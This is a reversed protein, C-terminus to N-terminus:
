IGSYHEVFHLLLKKAYQNQEKPLTKKCLLRIACSFTLFHLYKDPPLIESLICPGTYLFFQRFDTAKWREMEHFTRPRRAFETPICFKLSLFNHELAELKAKSIRMDARGKM